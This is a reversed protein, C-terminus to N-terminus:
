GDTFVPNQKQLFAAMGNKQDQLAFCSWFERMEYRLGESLPVELGRKICDKAKAVVPASCKAIARSIKLAEPMLQEQPVVRSILGMQEAEAATIRRGTLIMDMAKAKGVTRILRQTAGMGPIVGLSLEPQSFTATESAIAIDCMMVLECGGGLAFGNVAALIPKRVGDLGRWTELLRGNYAQSYNQSALEKIDAGAAFAKSGQGTIIIARVSRDGDLGKATEVLQQAVESNLANLAEPRTVTLIGVGELTVM